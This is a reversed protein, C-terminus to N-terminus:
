VDYGGEAEDFAQELESWDIGIEKWSDEPIIEKISALISSELDRAVSDSDFHSRQVIEYFRTNMNFLATAVVDDGYTQQLNDMIALCPEAIGDPFSAIESRFNLLAVTTYDISDYQQEVRQQEVRQREEKEQEERKRQEAKRKYREENVRRDNEMAQRLEKKFAEDRQKAKQLERLNSRAIKKAQRISSKTPKATPFKPESVSSSPLNILSEKRNKRELRKQKRNKKKSPQGTNIDIFNKVKVDGKM